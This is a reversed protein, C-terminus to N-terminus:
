PRHGSQVPPNPRYWADQGDSLEDEFACWQLGDPFRVTFPQGYEDREDRSRVTFPQGYEDREDRTLGDGDNTFMKLVTVQQHSHYWAQADNCEPSEWGHYEFWASEGIQWIERLTEISV